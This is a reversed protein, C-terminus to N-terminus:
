AKDASEALVGAYDEFIRIIESYNAKGRGSSKLMSYLTYTLNPYFLPFGNDRATKLGLDLDKMMFGAPFTLKDFKRKLGLAKVHTSLARSAASGNELAAFLKDTDVGLKAGFVFVESTAGVITALCMNNVLKTVEGAGLKGMHLLTTGMCELVPRVKELVAAEGGIYLTLTGDIASSVGKVVPSDLMFAGKGQIKAGVEVTTTPDITSMDVYVCGPRIGELVGNEGLTVAAVHPSSPLMTIIVDTQEAVERPSGAVAFGEKRMEEVATKNIDYITVSYGKKRVNSAMPRGMVGVGIFGIKSM